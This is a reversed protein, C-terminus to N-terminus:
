EGVHAPSGGKRGKGAPTSYESPKNPVKPQDLEGIRDLLRKWQDPKLVTEFQKDVEGNQYQPTFGCHIHDAHDAMALTPGGLDMLSILQDCQNPEQMALLERLVTETISGEGQNGLIPQGNVAAIDVANGSSHHSVSGSTTYYSHGCKLSTVTLRFGRAALVALTRLVRVDIQHTQIDERGCAYISIRSNTLVHRELATKSMLLVQSV